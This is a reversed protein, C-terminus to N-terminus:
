SPKTSDVEDPQDILLSISMMPDLIDIDNFHQDIISLSIEAYNGDQIKAWSLSNPESHLTTGFGTSNNVFSYLITNPYSYKQTVLSCTLLLSSVPDIQPVHQGLVDYKTQQLVAPYSGADFGLLSKFENTSNIIIQPTTAEPPFSWTAGVPKIYQYTSANQASTPMPYCNIQFKYFTSNAVMEFFYINSTQGNVTRTVYHGNLILQSQLYENLTEISYNGDPVTITVTTNLEGTTDFWTYQFRNNNYAAASINFWSYYMTVSKLAVRANKFTTSSTFRYVLRNNSKNVIHSNNFFITEM